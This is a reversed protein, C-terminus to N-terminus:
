EVNIGSDVTAIQNFSGGSTAGGFGDTNGSGVTTGTDISTAGGATTTNIVQTSCPTDSVIGLSQVTIEVPIDNLPTNGDFVTATVTTCQGAYVQQPANIRITYRGRDVININGTAVKGNASVSINSTGTNTLNFTAKVKGISNTPTITQTGASTGSVNFTVPGITTEAGAKYTQAVVTITDGVFARSNQLLKGKPGLIELIQISTDDVPTELTYTVGIQTSEGAQVNVAGGGTPIYNQGGVNIVTPTIVYNGPSLNALTTTQTLPTDTGTVTVNAPINNPLGAIQVSITGTTPQPPTLPNTTVIVPINASVRSLGVTGVYQSPSTLKASVVGSFIGTRLSTVVGSPSIKFGDGLNELLEWGFSVNNTVPIDDVYLIAQLQKTEGLISFTFESPIIEIRSVIQKPSPPLSSPAPAQPVQPIIVPTATVTFNLAGGLAGASLTELIATDFSINLTTSENPLLTFNNPSVVVGDLNPEVVTSLTYNPAINTAVFTIVSTARTRLKYQSVVQTLPQSDKTIILYDAANAM